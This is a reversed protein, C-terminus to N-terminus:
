QKKLYTYVAALDEEGLGADVAKQWLDATLKLAPMKDNDGMADLALKADKLALTLHMQPTFDDNKIMDLKGRMYPAALPGGELVHWLDETDFGMKEALQMTEAVGQMIAILWGNVVLKMKSGAGAKGLWKASKSIAAFVPDIAAAREHDGSALVTIMANEAPKKTGAVPADLFVVDPRAKEIDGVLQETAPIGITAMQAIIAHQKLHSLIGHSGTLYDQTMAGDVLMTIVVDANNVAETPTDFLALGQSVLDDGRSRTRNWARVTFGKKLLNAAFAHGMAGLGLIAVVPQTMTM